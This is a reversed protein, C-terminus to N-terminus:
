LRCAAGELTCCTRLSIVCKRHERPKVRIRLSLALVIIWAVCAAPWAMARMRPVNRVMVNPCRCRTERSRLVRADIQRSRSSRWV